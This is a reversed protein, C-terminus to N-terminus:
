LIRIQSLYPKAARFVMNRRTFPSTQHSSVHDKARDFSLKRPALALNECFSSHLIFLSSDVKVTKLKEKMVKGRCTKTLIKSLFNCFFNPPILLIVFMKAIKAFYCVSSM